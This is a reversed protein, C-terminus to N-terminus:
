NRNSSRANALKALGHDVRTILHEGLSEIRSAPIRETSYEDFPRPRAGFEEKFSELSAVGGSEGMDYFQCGEACAEEIAIRHLLNNAATRRTLELDSYGRWYIAWNRYFLLILSAVPRGDLRALLVRCYGGLHRGVLRFKRQREARVLPILRPIHRERARRTIWGGYLRLFDSILADSNGHEITLGAREAKRVARRARGSFCQEWIHDFGESLDLLHVIRRTPTMRNAASKSWTDALLPNPRISLRLPASGLLDDVVSDLEFSRIADAAIVGGYGWMKPMSGELAVHHTLFNRRVLPMVVARGSAFEYLRSVDQWIREACVADTWEPLQFPTAYRDADAVQHWVDRPAPSVVRVGGKTAIWSRM